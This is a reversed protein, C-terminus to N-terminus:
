IKNPLYEFSNFAGHTGNNEHPYVGFCIVTISVASWEGEEDRKKNSSRTSRVMDREAKLVIDIGHGSLKRINNIAICIKNSNKCVPSHPLTM